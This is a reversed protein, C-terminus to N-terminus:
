AVVGVITSSVNIVLVQKLCALHTRLFNRFHELLAAAFIVGAAKMMLVAGNLHVHDLTPGPIDFEVKVGVCDKNANM